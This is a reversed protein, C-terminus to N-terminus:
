STPVGSDPSFLYDTPPDEEELMDEKDIMTM